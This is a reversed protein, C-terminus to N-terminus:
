PGVPCVTPKVLPLVGKIVQGNAEVRDAVAKVTINPDRPRLKM